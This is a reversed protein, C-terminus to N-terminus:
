LRRGRKKEPTVINLHVKTDIQRMEPIWVSVRGGEVELPMLKGKGGDTETRFILSIM